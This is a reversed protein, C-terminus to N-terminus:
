QWDEEYDYDLDYAEDDLDAYNEDGRPDGPHGTYSGWTIEDGPGPIYTPNRM